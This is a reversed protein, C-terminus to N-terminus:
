LEDHQTESNEQSFDVCAAPTTFEFVYECKNPETVSTVKNESGCSVKVLTSRQPGNWCAQGREYLMYEYVNHEPGNWKSWSGLRVEAAGSKPTQVTKDFPCLKYVYEHDTYDFCEGLLPGYEDDIGFDKELFEKISTIESEIDRVSSEADSLENRAKSAADVLRQTEEDYELSKTSETQPSEETQEPESEEEEEDEHEQDDEPANEQDEAQDQDDKNEDAPPKFMGSEMMLYPKINLWSDEVFRDVNVTDHDKLFYKAEDEDVQGDKNKDFTQRTQLESIDLQGDKNSDYLNFVEVAEKRNKIAEEEERKRKEEEELKRYYELAANELNEAQNKLDEKELKVKLAEEKNKELEILKEKREQKLLKGKQSLEERVQKGARLLEERRLAEERATKGLEICNNICKIKGVYEDSGDCCDCIGDNVRTSPLNLPKHGANTCQFVGHPCASTGPEDSADACDCYDDNVQSFPITKSNDFCTFDEEPNYLAARSLSVGRPRPVESTSELLNIRVIILLFAYFSSTLRIM